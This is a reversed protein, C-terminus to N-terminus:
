HYRLHIDKLVGHDLIWFRKYNIHKVKLAIYSIVESHMLRILLHLSLQHVINSLKIKMYQSKQHSMDTNISISCLSQWFKKM